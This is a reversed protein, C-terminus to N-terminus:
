KSGNSVGLFNRVIAAVEHSGKELSILEAIELILTYFDDNFPETVTNGFVDTLTFKTLGIYELTWGAGDVYTTGNMSKLNTGVPCVFRNQAGEIDRLASAMSLPLVSVPNSLDTKYLHVAEVYGTPKAVAGAAFTLAATQVLGSLRISREDKPLYQLLARLAEWRAENYIDLLRQPNTYKQGEVSGVLAGTLTGQAGGAGGAVSGNLTLNTPDVRTIAYRPNALTNNLAAVACGAIFCEQNDLLGHATATTVQVPTTNSIVSINVASTADQIRQQNKTKPDIRMALEFLRKQVTDAM